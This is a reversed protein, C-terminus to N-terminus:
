ELLMHLVQLTWITAFVVAYATHRLFFRSRVSKLCRHMYYISYVNVAAQILTFVLMAATIGDSLGTALEGCYEYGAHHMHDHFLHIRNLSYLIAVSLRGSALRHSILAVPMGGHAVIGYNGLVAAVATMSGACLWVYFHACARFAYSECNTPYRLIYM